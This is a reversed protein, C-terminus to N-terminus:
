PEGGPRAEVVTIWEPLSLDAAALDLTWHQVGGETRDLSLGCSGYFGAFPKNKATPAFEAVLRRAGAQRARGAIWRFMAQEVTRGLIRCSALLMHLRWAEASRHVVALAIIGHDGFRDALGFTAVAWTPDDIYRRLDGETVRRTHMNFQNTRAAMQAARALHAPDDVHIVLKMELARYFSPLDVSQTQLTRRGAEARYLAGRRRDEESITWQDFVDLREVFGPLEAPDAPLAVALVQPLAQRVMECEVASDDLFVFSDLGLNLEEAMERINDPKPRWNVRMAAFHHARLIMDPHHELVDEVVSPENKSALCLVVGRHYLDLVRKQLAVFANGPFDHGLHIGDRGVDGAVGGWLTNDADLVLVKRALGALARLHRVYFGALPWYHRPAVPIRAFLALRPDPWDLRGHRAVLADYDMVYVNTEKSALARLRENAWLVLGAQSAAAARDALGLAPTVPQDYDQILITAAARRRYAGIAGRLRAHWEDVRQRAENPDLSNWADYIAPCVDQLRVALLVVDPRFAALGSEPDILLQEYQGFPAVYLDLDLGSRLGQLRLAPELPDFTFSALCAMRLRASVSDNPVARLLRAARSVARITPDAAVEDLLRNAWQRDRAESRADSTTEAM